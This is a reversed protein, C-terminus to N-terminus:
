EDEWNWNEHVLRAIRAFGTLYDGDLRRPETFQCSSMMGLYANGHELAEDCVAKADDEPIDHVYVVREITNDSAFFAIADGAGHYMTNLERPGLEIYEVGILNTQIRNM